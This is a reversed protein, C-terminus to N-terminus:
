GADTSNGCLLPDIQNHRYYYNESIFVPLKKLCYYDASVMTWDLLARCRCIVTYDEAGM